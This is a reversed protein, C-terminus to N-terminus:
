ECGLARCIESCDRGNPCHFIQWNGQGKKFPKPVKVLARSLSHQNISVIINMGIVVKRNWLISGLKVDKCQETM